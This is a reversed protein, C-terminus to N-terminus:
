DTLGDSVSAVVFTAPSSLHNEGASRFPFTVVQDFTLSAATLPRVSVAKWPEFDNSVM